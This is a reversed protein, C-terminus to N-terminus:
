KGLVEDYLEMIRRAHVEITFDREVRRRAAEGMRHRLEADAALREIAASLGEADSVGVLLGTEGDTVVEPIGGIRTGITPVGLAGAEIAVRGFGEDSSILLNIDLAAFVPAIDRRFPWITVCRSLGASEIAAAVQEAYDRENPSPDGVILFHFDARRVVLRQAAAVLLHQQKRRSILGIHGALFANPPLGLRERVGKRAAAVDGSARRWEDVDM